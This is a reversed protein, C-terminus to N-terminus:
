PVVRVSDAGRISAGDSTRAELVAETDTENLQLGAADVYVVLDELGDHNVDQTVALPSGNGRFRVHAGSLAVSGPDVTNADFVPSSLIAVPVTGRSELNIVNSSEGPRIDIDVDIIPRDPILVAGRAQYSGRTGGAGSDIDSAIVGEGVRARRPQSLTFSFEGGQGPFLGVSGPPELPGGAWNVTGNVGGVFQNWGLSNTAGAYSPFDAPGNYYNLGFPTFHTLGFAMVGGPPNYSLNAVEYRYETFSPDVSSTVRVQGGTEANTWTSVLTLPAPPAATTSRDAAVVWVALAAIVIRKM